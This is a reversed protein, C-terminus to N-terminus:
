YLGMHVPLCSANFKALRLWTLNLSSGDPLPYSIEELSRGVVHLCELCEVVLQVTEASSTVLVTTRPCLVLLKRLLEFLAGGGDVSLAADCNALLLVLPKKMSSSLLKLHGTLQTTTPPLPPLTSYCLILPPSPTVM